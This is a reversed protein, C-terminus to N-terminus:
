GRRKTKGTATGIKKKRNLPRNSFSTSVTKKKGFIKSIAAQGRSVAKSASKYIDYLTQNKRKQWDKYVSEIESMEPKRVISKAISPVSKVATKAAGGFGSTKYAKKTKNISSIMTGTFSSKAKAKRAAGADKLINAQTILSDIDGANRARYPGVNKKGFVLAKVAPKYVKNIIADVDRSAQMNNRYRTLGGFTLLDYANAFLHKGWKMGKVGYHSLYDRYDNHGYYVVM